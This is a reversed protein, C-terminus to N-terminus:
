AYAGYIGWATFGVFAIMPIYTLNKMLVAASSSNRSNIERMEIGQPALMNTVKLMGMFILASPIVYWLSENTIKIGAHAHSTMLASLTITSFAFALFKKM